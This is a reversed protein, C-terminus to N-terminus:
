IFLRLCRFTRIERKRLNSKQNIWDHHEFIFGRFSHLRMKFTQAECWTLSNLGVSPVANRSRSKCVIKFPICSSSEYTNTKNYLFTFKWFWKLMKSWASAQETRKRTKNENLHLVPVALCTTSSFALEAKLSFRSNGYARQAINQKLECQKSDAVSVKLNSLVFSFEVFLLM